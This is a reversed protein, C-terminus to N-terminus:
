VREIIVAIGQGIGVCMTVLAYRGQRRQLERTATLLLRAGSAGLPHGITIAGGNPNIRPDDIPLKLEKLCALVQAAFAENIEIVDMDDLNLGSRAMVKRTAPVPGLGMIRPEVGAVSSAVIRVQPRLGFRGATDSSGILLAAAGDNIGSANGATVTGGSQLPKLAALKKLSTDPRPHEDTNIIEPPAKRKAPPVEVSMIEDDYFGAKRAAEYKTQSALAFVDSEERSIDYQTALNEATGPLSDTGYQSTIRENPFRWGITSDFLPASRTFAAEPKALIFPARSMSEVGGAIFLNGESCRIARSADIAASLGSACLRNLTIGSVSSPLGAILAANRGVNRSDEGSQNSDGVIVDEIETRIEPYRHLLEAITVAMMDDPRLRSLVGGYRGFPTRVGDFVFANKM